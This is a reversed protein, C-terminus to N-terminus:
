NLAWFAVLSTCKIPATPRNRRAVAANTGTQRLIHFTLSVSLEEISLHRFSQPHGFHKVVISPCLFRVLSGETAPRGVKGGSSCGGRQQEISQM